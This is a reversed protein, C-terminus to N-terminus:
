MKAKCKYNKTGKRGYLILYTNPRELIEPRGTCDGIDDKNFFALREQFIEEEQEPTIKKSFKNPMSRLFDEREANTAFNFYWERLEAKVDVFGAKEMFKVGLDAAEDLKMYPFSYIDKIDDFCERWRPNDCVCLLADFIPSDAAIVLLADGGPQLVRFINDMAKQQDHVWHLCFFSTVHDFTGIRAILDNQFKVSIDIVEGSIRDDAEFERRQREVMEPCIDSCVVRSYTGPLHPLLAERVARGPGSGIDLVADEGGKRWNIWDGFEDMLIKAYDSTFNNARVYALTNDFSM